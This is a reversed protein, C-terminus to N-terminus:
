FDEDFDDFFEDDEPPNGDHIRYERNQLYAERLFLYPDFAEALPEDLGLLTARQQIFLMIILKDRVSTNSMQILPSIQTDALIGAGDRFTSPGLLPIVIYPGSPIGWAAMTQGFDEDHFVLGADTAPDFLGAVGVTSNVLFRGADSFGKKFKGQLFQNVITIPYRLNDFFNTISTRVPSPAVKKYGSALPRLLFRDLGDNFAYLPRNIAELPDPNPEVQAAGRSACGSTLVALVLLAM